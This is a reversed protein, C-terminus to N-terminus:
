KCNYTMFHEIFCLTGCYVLVSFCISINRCMMYLMNYVHRLFLLTHLHFGVPCTSKMDSLIPSSMVSNNVCLMSVCMSISQLCSHAVRLSLHKCGVSLRCLWVCVVVSFLVCCNFLLYYFLFFCFIRRVFSVLLHSDTLKSTLFSYLRFFHRVLLPM